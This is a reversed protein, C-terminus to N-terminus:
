MEWIVFVYMDVWILLHGLWFVCIHPPLPTDYGDANYNSCWVINIYAICCLSINNSTEYKKDKM